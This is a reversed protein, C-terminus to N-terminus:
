KFRLYKNLILTIDNISRISLFTLRFIKYQNTSESEPNSNWIINSTANGFRGTLQQINYSILFLLINKNKLESNMIKRGQIVRYEATSVHDNYAWLHRCCKHLCASHAITLFFFWCRRCSLQPEWQLGINFICNLFVGINLCHDVGSKWSPPCEFIIKSV